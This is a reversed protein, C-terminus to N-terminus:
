KRLFRRFYDLSTLLGGGQSTDRVAGVGLTLSYQGGPSRFQNLSATGIADRSQGNIM